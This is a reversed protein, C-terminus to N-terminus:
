HCLACLETRNVAGAILLKDTNSQHPFHCSICSLTIKKNRITFESSVPHNVVPHNRTKDNSLSIKPIKNFIDISVNIRGKVDEYKEYHCNLCMENVSSSLLTKQNSFHPNHCAQCGIEEIVKHKFKSDQYSSKEKTHCQFCLSSPKKVLLKPHDASHPSHCELCNEAAPKHKYIANSLSDQIESHCNYCLKNKSDNLVIKNNKPEAHCIECEKGEFPPHQYDKILKAANSAHPNHCNLCNAKEIPQNNHSTSLSISSKHCKFCLEPINLSLLNSFKGSHASHCNKCDETAKHIIKKNLLTQINQHCRFCLEKGSAPLMYKEKGFHANHCGTCKNISIASHAYKSRGIEEFDSHCTLCLSNGESILRFTENEKPIEHCADCQREQFPNHQNAEKILFANSSGHPNHCNACNTKNINQNYHKELLPKNIPHCNQCLEAVPSLLLKDYSSLHPNHCTNCGQQTAKHQFKLKTGELIENHCQCCLKNVEDNLQIGEKTEKHCFYCNKEEFPKHISAKRLLSKNFSGHIEHCSSCNSKSLNINEHSSSLKKEVHCTFCLEPTGQKLLKKLKSIHPLHCNNCNESVPYHKYTFDKEYETHCSYCLINGPYFLRTKNEKPKLHCIKCNGEEFPKHINIDSILKPQNSFHPSHCQLCKQGILQYFHSEALKAEEKHCDSCLQEARKILLNKFDSLHPNHCSICQSKFPSHVSKYKLGEEFESHCTLCLSSDNKAIKIEKENKTHCSDCASEQVPSHIFNAKLLKQTNSGHANHCATCRAAELNVAPHKDLIAEGQYDHCTSCIKNLPETLLKDINSYHPSHCNLCGMEIASHKFKANVNKKVDNHCDYCLEPTDKLLLKENSASHPSHCSTCNSIPLHISKTGSPVMIKNHCSYCLEKTDSKILSIKTGEKDKIIIHCADCGSIKFLGHKIKKELINSHCKICTDIDAKKISPHRKSTLKEQLYGKAYYLLILILSFIFITILKKKFKM